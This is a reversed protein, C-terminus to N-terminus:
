KESKKPSASSRYAVLEEGNPEIVYQTFWRIFKYRAVPGDDYYAGYKTDLYNLLVAFVANGDEETIERPVPLKQADSM